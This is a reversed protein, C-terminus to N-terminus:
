VTTAAFVLVEWPIRLLVTEDQDVATYLVLENTAWVIVTTTTTLIDNSGNIGFEGFQLGLGALYM